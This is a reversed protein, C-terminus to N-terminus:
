SCDGATRVLDGAIWGSSGFWEVQFWGDHFGFPSLAVDYPVLTLIAGDVPASRLRLVYNTWIWCGNLSRGNIAAVEAQPEEVQVVEVQIVEPQAVETPVKEPVPEASPVLVVSGPRDIEACIMGMSLYAELQSLTRPSTAADLFLISGGQQPFCVQVLPVTGWIDVADVIGGAIVSAIGIGAAGILQCQTDTGLSHTASVRIGSASKSLEECTFTPPKPVPSPRYVPRSGSVNLATATASATVTGADM